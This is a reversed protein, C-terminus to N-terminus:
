KPPNGIFVRLCLKWQEEAVVTNLWRAMVPFPCRKAIGLFYQPPNSFAETMAPTLLQRHSVPIDGLNDGATLFVSTGRAENEKIDM